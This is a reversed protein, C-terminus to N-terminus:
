RNILGLIQATPTSAGNQAAVNPLSPLTPAVAPKVASAANGLGSAANQEAKAKLNNWDAPAWARIRDYQKGSGDEALEKEVQIHLSRGVFHQGSVTLLGGIQAETYGASEYIARWRKRAMEDQEDRPLFADFPRTVEGISLTFVAKKGHNTGDKSVVDTVGYGTIPATYFGAEISQGPTFPKVGALNITFTFNPDLTQV